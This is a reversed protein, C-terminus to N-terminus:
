GVGGRGWAKDDAVRVRVMKTGSKRERRKGSRKQWDREQKEKQNKEEEPKRCGGKGTAKDNKRERGKKSKESPYYM